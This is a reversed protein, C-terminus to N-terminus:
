SNEEERPQTSFLIRDGYEPKTGGLRYVHGNEESLTWAVTGKMTYAAARASNHRAHAQKQFAEIWTKDPHCMSPQPIAAPDLNTLFVRTGLIKGEPSIITANDKYALVQMAQEAEISLISLGAPPATRNGGYFHNGEIDNVNLMILMAPGHGNEKVLNILSPNGIRYAHALDKGESKLSYIKRISEEIRTRLREHYNQSAVTIIDYVQLELEKLTPDQKTLIEELLERKASLEMPDLLTM